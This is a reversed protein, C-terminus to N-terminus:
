PRKSPQDHDPKAMPQGTWKGVIAEILQGHDTSPQGHAVYPSAMAQATIQQGHAARAMPRASWPTAMLQGAWSSRQGPWPINVHQGPGAMPQTPSGMARVHAPIGAYHDVMPQALWPKTM